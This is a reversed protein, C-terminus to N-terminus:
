GELRDTKEIAISLKERNSVLIWGREASPMAVQGDIGIATGSVFGSELLLL